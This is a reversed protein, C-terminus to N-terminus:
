QESNRSSVRANSTVGTWYLRMVASATSNGCNRSRKPMSSFRALRQPTSRMRNAAMLRSTVRYKRALTEAWRLATARLSEHDETVAIPM